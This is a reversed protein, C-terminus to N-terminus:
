TLFNCKKPRTQTNQKKFLMVSAIFPTQTTPHLYERMSLPVYTNTHTHSHLKTSWPIHLNYINTHKKNLKKPRGPCSPSCLFSFSFFLCLFKSHIKMLRNELSFYLNIQVLLDRIVSILYNQVRWGNFNSIDANNLLIDRVRCAM